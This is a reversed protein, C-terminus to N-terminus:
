DLMSEEISTLLTILDIKDIHGKYYLGKKEIDPNNFVEIIDNDIRVTWNGKVFENDSVENYGRKKLAKIIM